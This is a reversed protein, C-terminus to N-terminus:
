PVKRIILIDCNEEFFFKCNTMKLNGFTLNVLFGVWFQKWNIRAAFYVSNM